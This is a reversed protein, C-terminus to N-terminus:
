LQIGGSAPKDLEQQGNLQGKLQQIRKRQLGILTNSSINNERYVDLLAEQNKVQKELLPNMRTAHAIHGVFCVLAWLLMALERQGNGLVGQLCALGIFVVPLFNGIFVIVENMKKM